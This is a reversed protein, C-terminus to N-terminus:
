YMKIFECVFKNFEDITYNFNTPSEIIEDRLNSLNINEDVSKIQQLLNIIDNAIEIKIEAKKMIIYNKLNISICIYM